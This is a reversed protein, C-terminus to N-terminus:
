RERIAIFCIAKDDATGQAQYMIEKRITEPDAAFQRLSQETMMGIGDSFVVAGALQDKRVVEYQPRNYLIDFDRAANLVLRFFVRDNSSENKQMLTTPELRLHNNGANGFLYMKSDGSRYVVARGDVSVQAILVTTACEPFNKSDINQRILAKEGEGLRGIVALWDEKVQQIAQLMVEEGVEQRNVTFSLRMQNALSQALLRSSFYDQGNGPDKLIHLDSTGDFLYVVLNQDDAVFGCVDEGLDQDANAETLHKKRPGATTMIEAFFHRGTKVPVPTPIVAASHAPGYVAAAPIHDAARDVPEATAAPVPRGVPNSSREPAQRSTASVPNSQASAAAKLITRSQVFAAIGGLACLAGIALLVLTTTKPFSNSQPQVVKQDSAAAAVPTQGGGPENFKIFIRNSNALLGAELSRTSDRIHQLFGSPDAGADFTLTGELPVGAGGRVDTIMLRVTRATPQLATRPKPSQVQVDRLTIKYTSERTIIRNILKNLTDIIVSASRDKYKKRLETTNIKSIDKQLQQISGCCTDSKAKKGVPNVTKKEVPKEKRHNNQAPLVFALLCAFFLCICPRFM